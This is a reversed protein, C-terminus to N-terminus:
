VAEEDGARTTDELRLIMLSAFPGLAKSAQLWEAGM